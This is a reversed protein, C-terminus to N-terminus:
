KPLGKNMFICQICRDDNVYDQFRAQNTTGCASCKKWRPDPESGISFFPPLEVRPECVAVRNSDGVKRGTSEMWEVFGMLNQVTVTQLPKPEEGVDLIDELEMMVLGTGGAIFYNHAVTELHEEKVYIASGTGANILWIHESM